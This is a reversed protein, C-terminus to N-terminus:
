TRRGHDDRAASWRTIPRVARVLRAYAGELRMGSMGTTACAILIATQIDPSHRFCQVLDRRTLKASRGRFYLQKTIEAMRDRVATGRMGPADLHKALSHLHWERYKWIDTTSSLSTILIRYNVLPIDLYGFKYRRLLRLWLDYDEMPLAEDYGGVERVASTRLLVSPAGISTRRINALFVDEDASDPSAMSPSPVPVGHEDVRTMASYMGAYDAGRREFEQVQLQLRAPEMWDDAGLFAVYTSEVLALTENMTRLLGRNTQHFLPTVHGDVSALYDSIVSASADSSADDVVVLHAPRLVQEAVSELSRQVFAAQNYCLIVVTVPSSPDTLQSRDTGDPPSETTM